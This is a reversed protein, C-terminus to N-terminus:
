RSGVKLKTKATDGGKPTTTSRCVKIEWSSGKKIACYFCCSRQIQTHRQRHTRVRIVTRHIKMHNEARRKTCPKIGGSIQQTNSVAERREGKKGCKLRTVQALVAPLYVLSRSERAKHPVQKSHLM